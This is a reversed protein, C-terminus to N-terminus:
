EDKQRGVTGVIDRVVFLPRQRSEDAIRWIYEGLVGLTLLQLGSLVLVATMLSPWGALDTGYLIKSAIVAGAAVFGTLSVIIGLYSIFRVPAFSFSVFTDVANKVLNSFSWKSSGAHRSAREYDVQSQRFGTWSVLGFTVRHREGIQGLADIVKRDLLCFSGTGTSPYQPLALKRVLGYFIRAFFRRFFPDHRVDRTAWVTEYGERWRDVLRQVVEPPDQLDAAMVVACDGTAHELGAAIASHSGFNRSLSILKVRDDESNLRTVLAATEDTSGDDVFLIEWVEFCSDLVPKLRDLLVPINEEENLVPIIVSSSSGASM